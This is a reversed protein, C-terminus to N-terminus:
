RVMGPHGSNSALTPQGACAEVVKPLLEHSAVGKITKSMELLLVAEEWALEHACANAAAVCMASDLTLNKAVAHRLLEMVEFWKAVRGCAVMVAAITAADLAVSPDVQYKAFDKLAEQWSNSEEPSPEGPPVAFASTAGCLLAAAAVVLCASQGSRAKM